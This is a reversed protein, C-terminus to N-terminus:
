FSIDLGCTFMRSIPYNDGGEPDFGKYPTLLFLNKVAAYISLNSMGISNTIKTPFMYTLNLTSCRLFSADMVDWSTAGIGYRGGGQAYARPINTDTNTPTWRNLEDTSAVSLGTGGMMSDYLGSTKKAGYSYNFIASLTLNRYTFATNLGGYSSPDTSGVVQWDNNDIIGNGDKDVPVIDGPLVTHGGFNIGALGAMDSQQAIKNFKLTYINNLPQGVILNGTRQLDVGTFGGSTNYIAPVDGYLKTIKNKQFSVNIGMDWKFDNLKIITANVTFELGKNQLAGVNSIMNSYGSTPALSRQLLLNTNNTLFADATLSLRNHFFSGDIGVNWQKQKEWTLNPNGLRGDSNFVVSGNSYSPNYLSLYAYNPSNQNGVIGYGARIKLLNIKDTLSEFFPEQAINWGLVFSPFTGWQRGSAFKSSGDERVTVTAYYCSNYVYNARFIASLSTNSTWGSGPVFKDKSYTAGINKFGFDNTAFGSAQLQNYHSQMEQAGFSALASVRHLKNFTRDFTFANDWQWSFTESKYQSVSGNDNNTVSQGATSPTFNDQENGLIDVSYTTRFNLGKLITFNLYNASTLRNLYTYQQITLSILPNYAGSAQLGQWDLLLMSDNVALMPNATLATWFASGGLTQQSSRSYSTNTGVKLWPKITEELNIRGGGRSYNSNLLVGTEDTYNFGLYYVLNDSAGSFSVSHNQQFGTQEIPAVWNYTKNQNYADIEYQGFPCGINGYNLLVNNIYDQRNATPNQDMYQNAYADVRLDFLDKTGLMSPMHQFNEVGAWGNYSVKAAGKKGKKTTIVIVGNSAQVGYLATASADKLVDVSEIDDPNILNINDKMIVGDVVYIPNTGFQISQNGRVKITNTAGPSPDNDTVFVGAVKGELAANLNTAPVSRLQDSSVHSVAGTLDTKKISAGVVVVEGLQTNSLALEVNITKRGNVAIEKSELGLCSFVLTSNSPVTITYAGNLDTMTGIKNNKLVINVAPLVEHTDSQTVIGTVTIDQAFVARTIFFLVFLIALRHFRTKQIINM